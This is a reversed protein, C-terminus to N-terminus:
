YSESLCITSSNQYSNKDDCCLLELVRAKCWIKEILVQLKIVALYFFIAVFSAM